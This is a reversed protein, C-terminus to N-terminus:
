FRDAVASVPAHRIVRRRSCRCTWRASRRRLDTRRLAAAFSPSTAVLLARARAAPGDEGDADVREAWRQGREEVRRRRQEEAERAAAALRQSRSSLVQGDGGVWAGLRNRVWGPIHRLEDASSWTYTWGSGDSRVDLAHLVDAVTWGALLFAKLLWRLYWATMRRLVGSEQRLRECAALRDRKTRPSEHMAWTPSIRPGPRAGHPAERTRTPDRKDREPLSVSPPESVSKAQDSADEPVPVPTIDRPVCIVWLAARNGLGDDDLGASTGKRFRVTSGQEVVGLWGHERLWRVWRKVTAKSLGTREVVGAITPRSCMTKWDATWTIVQAVRLLNGYGDYRLDLVDPDERLARLFEQQGPARRMGRPVAAAILAKSPAQALAPTDSVRVARRQAGNPSNTTTTSRHASEPYRAEDVLDATFATM